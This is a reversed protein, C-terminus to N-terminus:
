FAGKRHQDSNGDPRIYQVSPKMDTVGYLSANFGQAKIEKFSRPPDIRIVRMRQNFLKYDYESIFADFGEPKLERVYFSIWPKGYKTQNFGNPKTAIRPGIYLSQPMYEMGGRSAGMQLSSLGTINLTRHFHSVFNQGLIPAQIGSVQIKKTLSFDAPRNIAPRGFALSTTSAFQEIVQKGDGIKHWGARYSNISYPKIYRRYLGLHPTGYAGAFFGEVRYQPTPATGNGTLSVKPSGFTAMSNVHHLEGSIPHNAEAQSPAGMPAYITHPTTKPKGLAVQSEIGSPQVTQKCVWIRPTGYGEQYIGAYLMISNAHVTPVGILNQYFGIPEIAQTRLIPKSVQGNPIDIGYGYDSEVGNEYKSLRIYQLSNLIPPPQSANVVKAKDSVVWKTFGGIYMNRTRHSVLNKSFVGLVQGDPKIYQRQLDLTPKGFEETVNGRTVLQKNRNRVEADGYKDQMTWRPTIRRIFSVVDPMGMALMSSDSRAHIERTYLAVKPLEIRPPQIGYRQEFTLERVRYSIMPIGTELSEFNGIREFIRRTNKFQTKEGFEAAIFGKPQVVFSANRINHWMTSVASDFGELTYKRKRFAVLSHESFLASDISAPRIQRASNDIHPEGIKESNWGAAGITKNRNGVLLWLSWSPPNLGSDVDYFQIIYQLLNWVKPYGWRGVNGQNDSMFGVPQIYHKTLRLEAQGVVSKFGIPYVQTIEPIIRSGFALASFGNPQIHQEGGVLPRGISGGYISAAEITKLSFEIRAAGLSPAALSPALVQRRYHTFTPEGVGFQYIGTAKLPRIKHVAIPSGVVQSAFGKMEYTRIRHSVWARGYLALDSGLMLLEPTKTFKAVGFTSQKVIGVPNLKRKAYGVSGGGFREANFGTVLVIQRLNFVTPKSVVPSTISVPLAVKRVNELTSWQTVEESFIGAPQLFRSKNIIGIEGFVATKIVQQAYIHQTPDFIVPRSVALNDFGSVTITRNRLMVTITGYSSAVFGLPKPTKQFFAQGFLQSSFGNARVTRPSVLPAAMGPAAIAGANQIYKNARTNLISPYPLSPSLIGNLNIFRKGGLLRLTGFAMQYISPPRVIKLYNYSYSTGYTAANFGSLYIRVANNRVTPKPVLLSDIAVPRVVQQNLRIQVNGSVFSDFQVPFVFQNEGQEQDDHITFNFRLKDGDPAVYADGKFNFRLEDGQVDDAM